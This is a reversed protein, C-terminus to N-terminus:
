NGSRKEKQSKPKPPKTRLDKEHGKVEQTAKELAAKAADRAKQGVANKLAETAKAVEQMGENLKDIHQQVDVPDKYKGAAIGNIAAEITAVAAANADRGAKILAGAQADQSFSINRVMALENTAHISETTANAKTYNNSAATDMAYYGVGGGIMGPLLVSGLTWFAQSISISGGAALPLAATGLVPPDHGDPDGFTTPNNKGYTYLNLSQPNGFNAYPVEIPHGAWDPTLFRGLPNSYYRALMYDLGTESDREHGTFKYHNSDNNVFQLEGGWPYYDEDEKITGTSDTIVSATKLHDSFYYSVPGSSSPSDRRAVREGDFFVYESQLNGL